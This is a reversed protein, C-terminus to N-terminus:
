ANLLKKTPLSQLRRIAADPHSRAIHMISKIEALRKQWRRHESVDGTGLEEVNKMIHLTRGVADSISQYDEDEVYSARM